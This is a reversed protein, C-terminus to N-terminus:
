KAAPLAPHDAYPLASAIFHPEDCYQELIEDQTQWPGRNVLLRYEQSGSIWKDPCVVVRGDPTEVALRNSARGFGEIWAWTYGEYGDIIFPGRRYAWGANAYANQVEQSNM